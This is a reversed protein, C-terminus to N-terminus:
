CDSCLREINNIDHIAAQVDEIQTRGRCTESTQIIAEARKDDSKAEISDPRRHNIAAATTNAAASSTSSVVM